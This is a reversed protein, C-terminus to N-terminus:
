ACGMDWVFRELEASFHVPTLGQRGDTGPDPEFFPDKGEAIRNHLSINWLVGYKGALIYRRLSFKFAFNSLQEDNKVKLRRTKSQKLTSKIPDVHM